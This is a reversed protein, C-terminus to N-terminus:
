RTVEQGLNESEQGVFQEVDCRKIERIKFGAMDPEDPGARSVRAQKRNQRQVGERVGIDHDVVREDIRANQTQPPRLRRLKMRTLAAPTRRRALRINRRSQNLRGKLTAPHQAKLAAIRANESSAALLRQGEGCGADREADHRPDRRANAPEGIGADRDSM